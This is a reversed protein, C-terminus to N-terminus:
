NTDSFLDLFDTKNNMSCKYINTNGFLTTLIEKELNEEEQLLKQTNSVDISGKKILIKRIIGKDGSLPYHLKIADFFQLFKELADTKTAFNENGGEIETRNPPASLEEKTLAFYATVLVIPHAKDLVCPGMEFVFTLTTQIIKDLIVEFPAEVAVRLMNLTFPKHGPIGNEKQLKLILDKSAEGSRQSKYNGIKFEGEILNHVVIIALHFCLLTILLKTSPFAVYVPHTINKTGDKSPIIKIIRGFQPSYLNPLGFIKVFGFSHKARSPYDFCHDEIRETFEILDVDFFYTSSIKLDEKTLKDLSLQNKLEEILEKKKNTESEQENQESFKESFVPCSADYATNSLDISTNLSEPSLESIKEEKLKPLNERMNATIKQGLFSRQPKRQQAALQRLQSRAASTLQCSIPTLKSFKAAIEM